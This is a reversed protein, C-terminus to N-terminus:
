IWELVVKGALGSDFLRYAEAGQELPFRRTILDKLRVKRDVVFNAVEALGALSFTWSGYVTLQKHIIQRSVDFTTPNEEGVFCARGWLMASDVAQIRVAPIGTADLTAGAGEGHTLDAIAEVPSTERADIAVDAGLRMSLALREPVVDVALVRAGMQSAFLTASLGVPGQGFVAITDAGSINLRKLAHFATGAGCACAAGEEFSMGDPLLVCTSAPALLYDQHGGNKTRGYTEHHHLCMQTYGIRCMKCTGCGTYHHMMVGDGVKFTNVGEGVEAIVGSPEHGRVVRSGQEGLQATPVRYWAWLDSGCLGSARMAIVVEGPGPIPDTLDVIEVERDGSFVLGRM